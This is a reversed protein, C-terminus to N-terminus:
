PQWGEPPEIGLLALGAVAATRWERGYAILCDDTPCVAAGDPLTHVPDAVLRGCGACCSSSSRAVNLLHWATLAEGYALRAAFEPSHGL